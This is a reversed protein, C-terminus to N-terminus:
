SCCNGPACGCASKEPKSSLTGFGGLLVRRIPEGTEPHKTLPQDNESQEIEYHKPDDCCSEPVTELTTNGTQLDALFNQFYHKVFVLNDM